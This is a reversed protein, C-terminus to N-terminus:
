PSCSTAAVQERLPRGPLEELEVEAVLSAIGRCAAADLPVHQEQREGRLVYWVRLERRWLRTQDAALATLTYRTPTVHVSGANALAITAVGSSVSPRELTAKLQRNSPQIFVPVNLRTMMAVGAAVSRAANSPMEEIVIRYALEEPAATLNTGIRLLRSTGPEVTFQAPYVVLDSTPTLALNGAPDNSWRHLTARFSVRQVGDNRLTLTGAKRVDTVVVRTPSVHLSAASASGAAVCWVAALSGLVAGRM